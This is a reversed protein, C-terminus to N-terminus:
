RLVFVLLFIFLDFILLIFHNHFCRLFTHASQQNERQHNGTHDANGKHCLSGVQEIAVIGISGLDIVVTGAGTHLTQSDAGLLQVGDLDVSRIRLCKNGHGILIGASGGLQIVGIGAAIVEVVQAMGVIHIDPANIAIGIDKDGSGIGTGIGNDAQLAAAVIQSLHGAVAQSVITGIGPYGSQRNLFNGAALDGKDAFQTHIDIGTGDAGAGGACGNRQGLEAGQILGSHDDLSLRQIQGATDVLAEAIVIAGQKDGKGTIVVLQVATDNQNVVDFAFGTSDISLFRQGETNGAAGVGCQKFDLAAVDAGGVALQIEIGVATLGVGVGVVITDGGEVAISVGLDSGIIGINGFSRGFCGGFCGSLRSDLGVGNAVIGVAAATSHGISNNGVTDAGIQSGVGEGAAAVLEDAPGSVTGAVVLPVVFITGRGAPILLTGLGGTVVQIDVGVAAANGRSGRDATIDAGEVSLPLCGGLGVGDAVVGVAAAAGHRIGNDGVTDAGFQAGVGEGAAAVLEDAPGSM